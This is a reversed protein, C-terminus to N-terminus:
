IYDRGKKECWEWFRSAYGLGDESQPKMAKVIDKRYWDEEKRIRGFPEIYTGNQEPEGVEKAFAAFLETYAGYKPEKLVLRNLLFHTVAPLGQYMGTRLNGPNLAVSVLGENGHRRATEQALAWNGIKSTGYNQNGTEVGTELISFDIGNKPSEFDAAISSTWIVRVNGPESLKLAARLKPLLHHTLVLPAVCNIGVMAEIDQATRASKPLQHPAMGANHILLDLRQELANFKEAAAKVSALDQLDLEIYRM